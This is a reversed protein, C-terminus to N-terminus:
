EDEARAPATADEQDMWDNNAKHGAQVAPDGPNELTIASKRTNGQADVTEQSVSVRPGGQQIAMKTGAMKAATDYIGRALLVAEKSVDCEPNKIVDEIFDGVATLKDRTMKTAEAQTRIAELKRIEDSFLAVARCYPPHYRAVTRLIESDINGNLLEERAVKFMAAPLLCLPGLKDETIDDETSFKDIYDSLWLEGLSALGGTMAAMKLQAEELLDERTSGEVMPNLKDMPKPEM